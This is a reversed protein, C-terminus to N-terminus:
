SFFHAPKFREGHKKSFEELQKKVKVFGIDKAYKMPGGLFPPFGAGLVLALDIDDSQAIQSDILKAGENIITYIGRNLIDEDSLRPKKGKKQKVKENLSRNKGKYIYFGEGSKEGPGLDSILQKMQPTLCVEPKIQSIVNLCIDLGIKDMLQFPGLPLGFQNNYCHDIKTVEVGEEYLFLAELLYSTLLRNVVFGPKDKVLIPTKDLRNLFLQITPLQKEKQQNTLCLEILPMRHAPNFFHLGFFNEPHTSHKALDSILLSSTNSAMLAHPKLKKSVDQIVTQKLERNEPLAEILLDLTSLGWLNTSGSLQSMKQKLDYDNIKQKQREKEWLNRAQNLASMLKQENNDLLRVRFGKNALLYAISQGMVGAGLVGVQRIPKKLDLEKKETIKKSKKIMKFLRILNKSESTQYLECFAKKEIELNKKSPPSGYTKKLVQLIKLPAPYFGKSKKLVQKKALYCFLFKLIKEMLFLLPKKDKWYFQSINQDGQAINEAMELARQELILHPVTEHVLGVKKASRASLSKGTLLLPLSQKLGILWPLWLCGGLGPLLGLQVEPLGIKTHPSDGALRYDFNLVWELGGGLCAGQIVAIKFINLNKFSLMVAHAKDLVPKINKINQVDKLDMGACFIKPKKSTLVLVKAQSQEIQKLVSNLEDMFSISLLNSSSDPQNWELWAISNQKISWNLSKM